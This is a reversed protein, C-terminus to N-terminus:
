FAIMRHFFSWEKIALCALNKNKEISLVEEKKYIGFLRFLIANKEFLVMAYGFCYKRKLRESLCRMMARVEEQRVEGEVCSTIRHVQAGQKGGKDLFCFSFLVGLM